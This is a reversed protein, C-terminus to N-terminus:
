LVFERNINKYLLYRLAVPALGSATHPTYPAVFWFDDTYVEHYVGNIWIMGRGSLVYNGHECIHTETRPMTVGPYYTCINMAMDFGWDEDIPLCHQEYDAPSQYGELNAVNGVVPKPVSYFPTPIYNKRVWLVRAKEKGSNIVEFDVGPPTWFYGERELSHKTGSIIVDVCGEVVFMSNEYPNVIRGESRGGPFLLLESELFEAGLRPTVLHSVLTGTWDPIRKKARVTYPMLCALGPKLFARANSLHHEEALQRNSLNLNSVDM